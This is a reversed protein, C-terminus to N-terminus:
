KSVTAFLVELHPVIRIETRRNQARGNDTENLYYVLRM